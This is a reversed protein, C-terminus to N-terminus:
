DMQIVVKGVAKRETLLKLAENVKELKYTHSVYPKLLGQECMDVADLVVEWEFEQPIICEEAFGSFNDKGLAIVRDGKSIEQVNSGIELVEGCIEFGPIFPYKIERDWEGKSILIDPSNVGCARVRVRVQGKKAKKVSLNEIKLPTDPKELVAAKFSAYRVGCNTQQLPPVDAGHRSYIEPDAKRYQNLCVGMLTYTETLLTSTVIKPAQRSAFGAVVVKGEHGVCKISKEFVEGGVTDFMVSVGNGKSVEKVTKLLDKLDYTLAAWAGKDRVLTAKDETSCVGIVKAKYVNAAVDVAALGLGGAAGTVLVVQGEKLLARRSLGLLATAYSEALAAGVEFDISSPIKFVDQTNCILFISCIEKQEVADYVHVGAPM